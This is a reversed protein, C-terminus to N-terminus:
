PRRSNERDPSRGRLRRVRENVSPDYRNHDDTPLHGRIHTRCRYCILAEQATVYFILVLVSSVLFSLYRTFPSLMIGFTLLLIALRQNFDRRKFIEECGCLPCLRVRHDRTWDLPLLGAYPCRVCSLVTSAEAAAKRSETGCQPCPYRLEM